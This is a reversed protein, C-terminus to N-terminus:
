WGRRVGARPRKRRWVWPAIRFKKGWLGLRGERAGRELERLVAVRRAYARYWWAHGAKLMEEAFDVGGELTVEAVVRGWLDFDRVRLVCKKGVGMVRAFVTAEGGGEQGEEPADIGWVRVVITVDDLKVGLTDGDFVRVVEGALQQGRREATWAGLGVAFKPRVGGAGSDTYRIVAM